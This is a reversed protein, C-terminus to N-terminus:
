WLLLGHLTECVVSQRHCPITKTLFYKGLLPYAAIFGFMFALLIASFDLPILAIGVFSFILFMFFSAIMLTGPAGRLFSKAKDAQISDAIANDVKQEEGINIDKGIKIINGANIPAAAGFILAAIAAIFKREMNERM